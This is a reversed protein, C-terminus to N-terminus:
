TSTVTFTETSVWSTNRPAMAMVSKKAKVIVFITAAHLPTSQVGTKPLSIGSRVFSSRVVKSIGTDVRPWDKQKDSNTFDCPNAVNINPVTTNGCNNEFFYGGGYPNTNGIYQVFDANAGITSTESYAIGSSAIFPGRTLTMSGSLDSYSCDVDSQTSGYDYTAGWLATNTETFYHYDGTDTAVTATDIILTVSQAQVSTYISTDSTCKHFFTVTGADFWIWTPDSRYIASRGANGYMIFGDRSSAMGEWRSSPAGPRAEWSSGGDSSTLITGSRGIGINDGNYSITAALWDREAPDSFLFSERWTTGGDRSTWINDLAACALLTMGDGSVEVTSWNKAAAFSLAPIESFSAGFNTSLFVKGFRTDTPIIIRRGDGSIEVDNIADVNILSPTIIREQFSAGYDSSVVITGCNEMVVQYQGSYSMSARRWQGDARGWCGGVVNTKKVFTVGYDNSTHIYGGNATIVVYQGSESTALDWGSFTWDVGAGRDSWTAGGNGSFRVNSRELAYVIQGDGSTAVGQSGTRLAGPLELWDRGNDLKTGYGSASIPSLVCIALAIVCLKAIKKM